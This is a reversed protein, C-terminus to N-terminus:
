TAYSVEKLWALRSRLVRVAFARRQQSYWDDPVSVMFREVMPVAQDYRQTWARITDDWGSMNARLWRVVTEQGVMRTGNGFGSPCNEIYKRISADSCTPELRANGDLLEGGLCAAPDFMPALRPPAGSSVIIGWNEQHRDSNGLWADFVLIDTLRKQLDVAGQKQELDALTGFVRELTHQPYQDPVYDPHAGRIVESGLSLARPENEGIFKRIVIGRRLVDGVRWAAVHAEPVELGVARAIRLVTAEIAHEFPRVELPLKRLWIAGTTDRVWFKERKGRPEQSVQEWGSVEEV